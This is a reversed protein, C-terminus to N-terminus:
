SIMEITNSPIVTNSQSLFSKFSRKFNTDLVVYVLSHAANSFHLILMTLPLASSPVYLGNVIRTVVVLSPLYGVMLSIFIIIMCQLIYKHSSNNTLNRKSDRYRSREMIVTELKKKALYVTRHIRVYSYLLGLASLSLTAAWVAVFATDTEDPKCFGMTKIFTSKELLRSCTTVMVCSLLHIVFLSIAITRKNIIRNGLQPHLVLLYRTISIAMVHLFTVFALHICLFTHIRCMLEAKPWAVPYTEIYIAIVQVINLVGCCFMDGVTMSGLLANYPKRLSKDKYLIAMIVGNVLVGFLNIIVGSTLMFTRFDSRLTQQILLDGMVTTLVDEPLASRMANMDSRTTTM